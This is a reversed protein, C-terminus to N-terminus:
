APNQSNSSAENAQNQSNVSLSPDIMWAEAALRYGLKEAVPPTLEVMDVYPQGTWLTRWAYRIRQAMGLRESFMSVRAFALEVNSGDSRIVVGANSVCSPFYLSIRDQDAKM